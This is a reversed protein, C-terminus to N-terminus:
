TRYLQVELGDIHPRQVEFALLSLFAFICGYAVQGSKNHVFVLLGTLLLRRMCEFVEFHYRKPYYASRLFSTPAVSEDNARENIKEQVVHQTGRSDKLSKDTPPNIKSRQRVLLSFAAPIGFPYLAIMIGAYVMYATHTRTDCEIRGDTRLYRKEFEPYHDCAFTQFVVTSVQSYVLYLIILTMTTHRAFLEWLRDQESATKDGPGAKWISRLSRRSSVVPQQEVRGGAPKFSSSRGVTSAAGKEGPAQSRGALTGANSNPKSNGLHASTDSPRTSNVTGGRAGVPAAHKEKQSLQLLPKTPSRPPRSGLRFTVGLLSLLVLPGITVMLLKDYFDVGSAVCTASLLWGLDLSFIGLISLLKDYLPPFRVNTVDAFAGSIQWVVIVIKLKSLPLGSMFEGIRGAATPKGGGPEKQGGEALNDDRKSQRQSGGVTAPRAYARRDYTPETDDHNVGSLVPTEGVNDESVTALAPTLYADSSVSRPGFSVGHPFRRRDPISGGRFGRVGTITKDNGSGGSGRSSSSLSSRGRNPTNPGVGRRDPQGSFDIVGGTDSRSLFDVSRTQLMIVSQKTSAVTSSVAGRGGVLYVVLLAMVVLTLLAAVSLMFLIVGKFGATCQHCQNAAGRGYGSSCVSWLIYFPEDVGEYGDNCYEQVESVDSGGKCAGENFCEPSVSLDLAARWYGEKVSLAQLTEGAQTCDVGETGGDIDKENCPERNGTYEDSGNGGGQDRDWFSGAQCHFFTVELSETNSAGGAALNSNSGGENADSDPSSSTTAKTTTPSSEVDIAEFTVSDTGDFYTSPFTAVRLTINERPRLLGTSPFVTWTMM